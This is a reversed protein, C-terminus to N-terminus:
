EDERQIEHDLALVDERKGYFIVKRDSRARMQCFMWLDHGLPPRNCGLDNGEIEMQFSSYLTYEVPTVRRFPWIYIYKRGDQSDSEIMMKHTSDAGLQMARKFTLGGLQMGFSPAMRYATHWPMLGLHLTPQCFAQRAFIYSDGGAYPCYTFDGSKIERSTDFFNKETFAPIGLRGLIEFDVSSFNREAVLITIPTEIGGQLHEVIDMFVALQALSRGLHFPGTGHPDSGNLNGVGIFFARTIHWGDPPTHAALRLYFETRDDCAKWLRSKEFYLEVFYDVPLGSTRSPRLRQDVM